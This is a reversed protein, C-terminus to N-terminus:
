IQVNKYGKYAKNIINQLVINCEFLL